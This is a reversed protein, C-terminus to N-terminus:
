SDANPRTVATIRERARTRAGTTRSQKLESARRGDKRQGDRRKEQQRYVMPFVVFFFRSPSTMVVYGGSM